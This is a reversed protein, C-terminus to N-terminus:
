NRLEVAAWLNSVSLEVAKQLNETAKKAEKLGKYGLGMLLNATSLRANDSQREGFKAFFDPDSSKTLLKNGAEILAKFNATAKETNKLKLHSLGQYYTVLVTEKLEQTASKEFYSKAEAQKGLAENALGIFYNIQPDRAGAQEDEAQRNLSKLFQDLAEQYKKEGLLKSGLLLRADVTMDFNSNELLQVSKESQGTLNMVLIQRVFADDRQKVIDAASEFLKARTVLATNNREYLVDLEAYYVPEDKKLSFAKEYAFIAKPIDNLQYNYGWGLNRWAIALLPNLQVAKEWYVIARQPQKDYLLNGLYYLPKADEPRLYAVEKLVREDELRFPFVYDTPMASAESFFKEAEANGSIDQLYGLYYSVMQDKGSYRRLVDEAEDRM